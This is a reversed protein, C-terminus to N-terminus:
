LRTKWSQPNRKTHFIAVIHITSKDTTYYVAYPFKRVLARRLSRYVIPYMTPNEHLRHISDKISQIFEEDLGKRQQGYWLEAEFMEMEAEPLFRITM